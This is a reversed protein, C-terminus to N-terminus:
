DGVFRLGSARGRGGKDCLDALKELAPRAQELARPLLRRIEAALARLEDGEFLTDGFPDVRRLMPFGAGLDGSPLSAEIYDWWHEAGDVLQGDIWLEIQVAM